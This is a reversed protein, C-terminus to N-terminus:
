GKQPPRLAKQLLYPRIHIPLHSPRAFAHQCPVLATLDQGGSTAHFPHPSLRSLCPSPSPCAAQMNTEGCTSEERPPLLPCVMETICFTWM